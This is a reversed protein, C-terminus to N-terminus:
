DGTALLMEFLYTIGCVRETGEQETHSSLSVCSHLMRTRNRRACAGDEGLLFDWFNNGTEKHLIM